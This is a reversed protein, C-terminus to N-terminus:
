KATMATMATLNLNYKHELKEVAVRCRNKESLLVATQADESGRDIAVSEGYEGPWLPLWAMDIGGGAEEGAQAPAEETAAAAAPAVTAAPAAAASAGAGGEHEAGSANGTGNTLNHEQLQHNGFSSLDPMTPKHIDSPDIMIAIHFSTGNPPITGNAESTLLEAFKEDLENVKNLCATLPDHDARHLLKALEASFNSTTVNVQHSVAEKLKAKQEEGEKLAAIHAEASSKMAEAEEIVQSATAIEDEYERIKKHIAALEDGTADVAEQEADKKSAEANAIIEKERELVEAVSDIETGLAQTIAEPLSGSAPTGRRLQLALAACLACLGLRM